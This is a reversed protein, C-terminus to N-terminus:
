LYKNAPADGSKQWRQEQDSAVAEAAGSTERITDSTPRPKRRPAAASAGRNHEEGATKRRRRRRHEITKLDRTNISLRPKTKKNDCDSQKAEAPHMKTSDQTM